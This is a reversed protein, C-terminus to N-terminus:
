SMHSPRAATIPAIDDNRDPFNQLRYSKSGATLMWAGVIIPSVCLCVCVLTHAGVNVCVCPLQIFVLNYLIVLIICADGDCVFTHVAGQIRVNTRVMLNLSIQEVTIFFKHVM